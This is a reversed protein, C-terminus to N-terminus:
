RTGGNRIDALKGDRSALDRLLEAPAFRPGFKSELAQLKQVLTSAGVSDAYAALGGRFQPFGMGLLTALDIVDTSDAVGEGLLRAAENVMPLLVRDQIEAPPMERSSRTLSEIMDGHITPKAGRQDKPPHIYFGRGSKRGLWGRELIMDISDPLVVRDGLKPQM